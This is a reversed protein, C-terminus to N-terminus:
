VLSLVLPLQTDDTGEVSPHVVFGLNWIVPRPALSVRFAPLLVALVIKMELQSFKFGICSRPGGGFTLLHQYVGTAPTDVVSQPLPALWRAPKWEVADPGWVSPARNAAHVSLMFETGRPIHLAPLEAGDRGRIPTALPLVTDALTTRLMVPAPPYLRLTERCVADLYPLQMLTDYPIDEGAAEPNQALLYVIQALATSTTETAAFIFTSMKCFDFSNNTSSYVIPKSPLFLSVQGLVEEEPLRNEDDAHANQHMLITVLDKGTDKESSGSSSLMARKKEEFIERTTRDMVDLIDRFEHVARWPVWDVVARRFRATGINVGWPLIFRFALSLHVLLPQLRLLADGYPHVPQNPSDTLHDFSYGLGGQGILELACRSLWRLINVEAPGDTVKSTLGARLKHAVAYFIPALRRLHVVNFVPNLMKRQRRHQEGAGISLLGAAFMLKGVLLDVPNRSYLPQDKVILHHLALPDSVYLVKFQMPGDIRVVGGYQQVIKNHFDWGNRNLLARLNGTLISQRSPGPINDLPSKTCLSLVVRWLVWALAIGAFSSAASVVSM